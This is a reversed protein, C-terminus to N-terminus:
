MLIYLFGQLFSPIEKYESTVPKLELIKDLYDTLTKSYVAIQATINKLSKRVVLRPKGGLLLKLRKRYDTKGERKRRFKIRHTKGKKM